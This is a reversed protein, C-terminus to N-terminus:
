ESEDGHVNENNYQCILPQACATLSLHLYFKRKSPAIVNLLLVTFNTGFVELVKSFMVTNIIVMADIQKSIKDNYKKEEVSSERGLSPKSTPLLM